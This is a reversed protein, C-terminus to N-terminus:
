AFQYDVTSATMQLLNHVGVSAGEDKIARLERAYDVLSAYTQESVKIGGLIDLCRDM